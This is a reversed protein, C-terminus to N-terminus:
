FKNAMLNNINKKSVDISNQLNKILIEKQVIEKVIIDQDYPELM